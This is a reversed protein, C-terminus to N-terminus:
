QLQSAFCMSGGGNKKALYMAQDAKYLLDECTEGDEPYCAVGVSINCFTEGNKLKWPKNFRQHMFASLSKINEKTVAGDILAVFEDGGNRFIADKLMPVKSFFEGLKVLLEDGADHGFTDNVAKFEDIDFFLLYGIDGGKAHHIRRECESLLMRRNPLGTLSDYHAMYYIIEENRKNDTIDASSVLHALRGDVWRFATSFVRFWSGDFPRQYDWSYIKTPNGEEDILEKQPCFECPGGQGPFLVEWCKRAVFQASGGYPAAMSKNVYLINHNYFDNVYIDIGTNDLISEFSNQTFSLKKQYVRIEVYKELISLLVTLTKLDERSFSLKTRTNLFVLLGFSCSNEDVVTAIVLTEACFVELLESEVSTNHDGKRIHSIIEKSLYNRYQPNVADIDFKENMKVECSTFGERLNLQNQRDIEYVLGCDFSFGNCILKLADSVAKTDVQKGVLIKALTLVLADKSKDAM